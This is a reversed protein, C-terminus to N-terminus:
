RDFEVVYAISVDGQTDDWVPSTRLYFRLYDDTGGANNPQGPAWNTYSWPEGTVWSWKGDAPSGPPKAGGSYPGRDGQWADDRPRALGFVFENEAATTLTALYGGMQEAARKADPWTFSASPVVVLYAHGNQKWVTANARAGGDPSTTAGDALSADGGAAELPATDAGNTEVRGGAGYQDGDATGPCADRGDM